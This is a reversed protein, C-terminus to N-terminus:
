AAIAALNAMDLAQSRVLNNDTLPLDYLSDDFEKSKTRIRDKEDLRRQREDLIAQSADKGIKAWNVRDERDERVYGFSTAM